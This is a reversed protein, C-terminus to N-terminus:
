GWPFGGNVRINLYIYKIYKHMYLYICIYMYVYICTTTQVSRQPLSGCLCTPICSMLSGVHHLQLVSTQFALSTLEIGARPVINGMKMVGVVPLIALVTPEGPM